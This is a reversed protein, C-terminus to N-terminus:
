PKAADRGSRLKQIADSGATAKRLQEREALARDLFERVRDNQSNAALAKQFHVIAEDLQGRGALIAGLNAHALELSPNTELAKRYQVIAQDTDGQRALASGLNIRADVYSPKIDVAKRFEVIAEDIRGQKALANGLNNRALESRPKVALAKQYESIAGDIDGRAALMAGLNTHSDAHNPKREIAERYEAMAADLQGQRRLINAMCFHAEALDPRATLAIRCHSAAEDLRELRLLATAYNCHAEAFDSRIAIAKEYQVIADEIRGEDALAKGYNNLARVNEPLKAVTDQWIALASHYCANRHFTAAGLAITAIAVLAVGALRAARLSVIRRDVLRRGLVYGGIVVCIVVAALPLYMRKEGGVQQHLPIISSSPALIAFFATGLFGLWPQYRFAAIIAAAMAVLLLLYPVVQSASVTTFVGYDIVLPSPCFCLRLYHAIMDCQLLAYEGIRYGTRGFVATGERGQPLTFLLILWTAALGAYLGRCRRFVARWSDSLFVRDYLLVILPASIAAEKSGIAMACSAIAAVHWRTPHAADHGRIVCYLTSLYFLGALVETRQVLYTVADTLLPHVAWLLAIALALPTAAGTWRKGLRPLLLTRRVIGFLLWAAFVHAALNVVHYSWVEQGSIAYNVALSANVFPRRQVAEGNNPPMFPKWVPWLHRITQNEVIAIEDDFVFVGSFSNSYALTAALAILGAALLLVRRSQMDAFSMATFARAPREPNSNHPHSDSQMNNQDMM